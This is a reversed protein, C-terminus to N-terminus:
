ISGDRWQTQTIEYRGDLPEPVSTRLPIGDRRALVDPTPLFPNGSLRLDDRGSYRARPRRPATGVSRQCHQSDAEPWDDMAPSLCPRLSMPSSPPRPGFLRSPAWSGGTPAQPAPVRSM